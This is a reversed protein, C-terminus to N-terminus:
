TKQKTYTHCRPCGVRVEGGGKPVRIVAGCNKCKFYRHTHREAWMRKLLRMKKRVTDTLQRYKECEAQRKAINKSYTRFISWVLLALAAYYFPRVFFSIVLCVLSAISLAKSLEDYGYRGIMFRQM